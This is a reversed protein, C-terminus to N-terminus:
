AGRVKANHVLRPPFTGKIPKGRSKETNRAEKASRTKVVFAKVANKMRTRVDPAPLSDGTELWHKM